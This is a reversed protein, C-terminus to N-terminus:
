GCGSTIDLQQVHLDKGVGSFDLVGEGFDDLDLVEIDLEDAVAIALVDVLLESSTESESNLGLSFEVDGPAL